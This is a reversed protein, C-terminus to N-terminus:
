RKSQPPYNKFLKAIAKQLNRYNKDPNTNLDVTKTIDGRWVLQKQAPDYIDILLTGVPVTGTQGQVSGDRWGGYGKDGWGFGSLNIDKEAHVAAHYAILLDGNKDVRTLGKEALQEDVARKIDRDLLQDEFAGIRIAGLPGGEPLKPAGGPVNRDARAPDTPVDVWQYTRYAAFNTGRAYNYHVDQACACAVVLLIPIVTILQKMLRM